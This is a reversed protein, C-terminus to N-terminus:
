AAANLHRRIFLEMALVRLILKAAFSGNLYCRKRHLHGRSRQRFFLSREDGKFRSARRRLEHPSHAALINASSFKISRRLPRTTLVNECRRTAFSANNVCWWREDRTRPSKSVPSAFGERSGRCRNPPSNM